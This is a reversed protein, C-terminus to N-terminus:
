TPGAKLKLQARTGPHSGANTPTRLKPTVLVTLIDALLNITVVSAAMILTIAQIVPVDRVEIASNLANGIGPYSFVAEVIVAGGLLLRSMLAIGQIVPVLANPVAHRWVIRRESIGRLRAAAVYETQLAEIMATRVQRLLVPAITLVLTLTPLILCLPQLFPSVAPNLLSVAPLIRFVTTSLLLILGIGIVFAPLAKLLIVLNMLWHDLLSDRRVALAIGGLFASPVALLLVYIMLAASNGFREAVLQGAPQDSELSRGFDGMLARGAWHVYQEPLPRDLGLQRRLTQISQETADPGLIVRAPDSPLAQTAGFVLISVALATALGAALRASLWYLWSPVAFRQTRSLVGETEDSM